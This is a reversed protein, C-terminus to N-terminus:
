KSSIERARRDCAAMAEIMAGRFGRSELVRIAEITSGAPSCVMDKLAGPHMGSDMVMRASGLVAQSALRYAMGRQLGNLVAADAMAEILVFVYAPSSGTLATVRELAKEELFETKGVANFLAAAIDRDGDTTNDGMSLCTMGENVLAPTNPMCRVCRARKGSFEFLHELSLGLVISILLKSETFYGANQTLADRASDPKVALIIIDSLGIIEANDGAARVGTAGCFAELKKTDVDFASIDGAAAVGKALMGKILASGMNGAGILGIKNM